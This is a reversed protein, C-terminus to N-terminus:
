ELRINDVYIPSGVTQMRGFADNTNSTDARIILTVTKNWYSSVDLTYSNFQPCQSPTSCSRSRGTLYFLSTTTGAAPDKVLVYLRADDFTYPRTPDDSVQDGLRVDLKLSKGTPVFVSQEIKKCQFWTDSGYQDGYTLNAVRGAAPATGINPTDAYTGSYTTYTASSCYTWPEADASIVRKSWSWLSAGSSFDGNAVQARSAFSLICLGLLALIRIKM